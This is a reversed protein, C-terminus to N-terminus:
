CPLVFYQVLRVLLFNYSKTGLAYIHRWLTKPEFKPLVHIQISPPTYMYIHHLSLM